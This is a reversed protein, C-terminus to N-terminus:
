VSQGQKAYEYVISPSRSHHIKIYNMILLRQKELSLKGTNNAIYIIQQLLMAHEHEEFRRSTCTRCTMM